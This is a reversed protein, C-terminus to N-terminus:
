TGDPGSDNSPTDSPDDDDLKHGDLHRKLKDAESAQKFKEAKTRGFKTRNSDARQEKETRAKNKRVQRLNIIDAM